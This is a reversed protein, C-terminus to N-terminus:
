FNMDEIGIPHMDPFAKVNDQTGKLEDDDEISM